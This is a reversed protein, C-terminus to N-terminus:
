IIVANKEVETALSKDLVGFLVDLLLERHTNLYFHDGPFMKSNFTATTHKGWTEICELTAEPDEYSGFATIPCNLRAGEQYAYTELLQIDARLIPLILALLAEDKLLVDPIANYRASLQEVFEKDSLLHLTRIREPVQPGAAGSVFLHQPQFKKQELKKALEYAIVSGMSHGFIAFPKDLYPTLAELLHELLIDLNSISAEGRRMERGPFAFAAVEVHAPLLQPWLRFISAGAGAYPLCFLRMKAHPNPQPFKIWLNSTSM